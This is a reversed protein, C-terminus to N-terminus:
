YDCVSVMPIHCDLIPEVQSWQLKGNACGPKTIAIKSWNQTVIMQRLLYASQEILIIDSDNRWDHKTPFSVICPNLHIIGPINGNAKLHKAITIEIGPFRQKAQLAIGAGMVATGDKRIIGNTTVCIADARDVLSWINCNYIKM